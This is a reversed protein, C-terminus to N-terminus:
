FNWQFSLNYRRGLIDYNGIGATPFPPDVDLLNTAALRLKLNESFTYNAGANLLM